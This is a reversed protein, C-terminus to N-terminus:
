EYRLAEVPDLNAARRAPLAGALTGVLTTVALVILAIVPKVTFLSEGSGTGAFSSFADAFLAGAAAFLLFAILIGMLGGLFGITAAEVTFLRRINRKTAGIARMVGIERTRELAAMVMTNVVGIAAVLLAISGIVLVILGVALLASQQEVLQARGSVAGLDLEDLITAVVRDAMGEGPEVQVYLTRYGEDAIRNFTKDIYGQDNCGPAQPDCGERRTQIALEEAWAFPIAAERDGEYVGVVEAELLTSGCGNQGCGEPGANSGPGQYWQDTVLTVTSGVLRRYAEEGDYGLQQAAKSSILVLGAGDGDTFDRGALISRASAANADLSLFNIERLERDASRLRYFPTPALRAVAVVGPVAEVRDVDGDTLAVGSNGSNGWGASYFDVDKEATVFVRDMLGTREFTDSVFSRANLTLVLMLTVALSGIVIAFVTLFSRLKQRRINRLASRIADSFRM